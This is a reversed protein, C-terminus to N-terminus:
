FTNEIGEKSSTYTVTHIQREYRDLLTITDGSNNLTVGSNITFTAQEGSALSASILTNKDSADRLLLQGNFPAGSNLLTITENQYDTGIPNALLSTITLKPQPHANIGFTAIVPIHDSARTDENGVVAAIEEFTYAYKQNNYASIFAPTALIQDYMGHTVEASAAYNDLNTQRSDPVVPDVLEILADTKANSKLGYSVKNQAVLPESLNVFYSGPVNELTQPSFAGAELTNLSADDPTDNFDGLLVVQDYSSSDIFDLIDLSANVRTTETDLRGSYRSKAHHNLVLVGGADTSVILKLVRREDIFNPNHKDFVFDLISDANKVAGSALTYDVGKRVAFALNMDDTSDDDLIIVWKEPDFYYEAAFRDRVEQLAVIDVGELHDVVQQFNKQREKQMCASLFKVNYTAVSFTLTDTDSPEARVFKTSIILFLSSFYLLKSFSM